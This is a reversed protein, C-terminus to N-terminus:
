PLSTHKRLLNGAQERSMELQMILQKGNASLTMSNLAVAENDDRALARALSRLTELNQIVSAVSPEADFTAVVKASFKQGDIKLSVSLLSDGFAGSGSLLRVFKEVPENWRADGANVIVNTQGYQNFTLNLKELDPKDAAIEKRIDRL